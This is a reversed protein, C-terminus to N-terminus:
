VGIDIAKLRGTKRPDSVKESPRRSHGRQDPSHSTHQPPEHTTVFRVNTDAERQENGAPALGTEALMPAGLLRCLPPHLAGSITLEAHGRPRLLSLARNEIMRTPYSRARQFATMVNIRDASDTTKTAINATPHPAGSATGSGGGSGTGSVVAPGGCNATVPSCGHSGTPSIWNMQSMTLGSSMATTGLVSHAMMEPARSPPRRWRTFVEALADTVGTELVLAHPLDRHSSSRTKDQGM